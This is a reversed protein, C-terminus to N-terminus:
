AYFNIFDLREGIQEAHCFDDVIGLKHLDNPQGKLDERTPDEIATTVQMCYHKLNSFVADFLGHKKELYDIM